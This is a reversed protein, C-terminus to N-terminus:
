PGAVSTLAAALLTFVLVAAVATAGILGWQIGLHLRVKTDRTAHRLM